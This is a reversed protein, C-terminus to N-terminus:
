RDPGDVMHCLVLPAKTANGCSSGGIIVYVLIISHCPDIITHLMSIFFIHDYMGIELQDEKFKISILKLKLPILTFNFQFKM